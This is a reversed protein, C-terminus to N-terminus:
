DSGLALPRHQGGTRLDCALALETGGGLAYGNVVAITPLRLSGLEVLMANLADLFDSVQSESM